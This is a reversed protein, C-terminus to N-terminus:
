GSPYLRERWAEVRRAMPRSYSNIVVRRNIEGANYAGYAELAGYKSMYAAMLRFGVTLQNAVIHAGGMEFMDEVLEWWTIQTEGIGNMGHKYTGGARLLECREKTVHQHYYPPVDGVDGHDGGFVNRGSSEQERLAAAVEIALGEEAAIRVTMRGRGIHRTIIKDHFSLFADQQVAPATLLGAPARRVRERIGQSPRRQNAAYHLRWERNKLGEPLSAMEGSM